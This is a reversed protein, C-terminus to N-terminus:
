SNHQGAIRGTGGVDAASPLALVQDVVGAVDLQLAQPALTGLDEVLDGAVHDVAQGM